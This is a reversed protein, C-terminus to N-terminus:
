TVGGDGRFGQCNEDSDGKVLVMVASARAIKRKRGVTVLEVLKSYCRGIPLYELLM